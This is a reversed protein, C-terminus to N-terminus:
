SGIRKTWRIEDIEALLGGLRYPEPCLDAGAEVGEYPIFSVWVENTPGEVTVEGVKYLFLFSALDFFYLNNEM